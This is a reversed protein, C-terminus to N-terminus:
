KNALRVPNYAVGFGGTLIGGCVTITDGIDKFGMASVVVGAIVAILGIIYVATRIKDNFIPTYQTKDTHELEDSKESEKIPEQAPQTM